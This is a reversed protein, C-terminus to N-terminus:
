KLFQSTSINEKALWEVATADFCFWWNDPTPIGIAYPFKQDPLSVVKPWVQPHTKLSLTGQFIQTPVFFSLGPTLIFTQPLDHFFFKIYNFNKICLSPKARSRM